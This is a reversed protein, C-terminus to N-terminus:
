EEVRGKWKGHMDVEAGWKFKGFKGEPYGVVGWRGKVVAPTRVSRVPRGQCKCGHGDGSAV